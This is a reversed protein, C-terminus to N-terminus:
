AGHAGVHLVPEGDVAVGGDDESGAELPNEHGRLADVADGNDPLHTGVEGRANGCEDLGSAVRGAQGGDEYAVVRRAPHVDPVLAAGAGRGAHGIQVPM